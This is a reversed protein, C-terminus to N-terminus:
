VTLEEARQNITYTEPISIESSPHALLFGQAHTFGLMRVKDLMFEDEIGEAVLDYGASIIMRAVDMAIQRQTDNSDLAQVMLYDFKVIDVPMSALYRFSSYGSGFDDLAVQYGKNRLENLIGTTKHLETILATETIELIIRYRTLYPCLINLYDFLVPQTISAGSINISIRCNEPIIHKDFQSKIYKLIALDFELDLGEANVVPFIHSPMILGQDDELRTLVECFNERPSSFSIVPQYHLLIGRGNEIADYVAHLYRSSIISGAGTEMGAKYFIIKDSGPGKAHYMAIDALKHLNTLLEFQTGLAHALGISFRIPEKIKFSKFPYENICQQCAKAIKLAEDPETNIMHIAFENGGLRYLRDNKRLCSQLCSSVARIVSDGTAHGYTDNIAKFHDCDFLMVSLSISQGQVLGILQKWEEEYARRNPVSTLSDYHTLRWLEINKKNLNSYMNELDYQYNKFSNFLIDMEKVFVSGLTNIDIQINSDNSTSFNDIYRTLRYLPKQFLYFVILYAIVGLVILLLVIRFLTALMVQELENAMPVPIFNYQVGNMLQAEITKLNSNIHFEVSGADVYRFSNLAMFAEAFDIRMGAYGKLENKQLDHLPMFQFYFLRNNLVRLVDTESSIQDPFENNSDDQNLSSGDLDYLEIAKVYNSLIDTAVSRNSRWYDYYVPDSLQQYVENWNKLKFMQEKISLVTKNIAQQIEQSAAEQSSKDAAQHITDMNDLMWYSVIGVLSISIFLYTILLLNGPILLSKRNM